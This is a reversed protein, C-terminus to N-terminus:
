LLKLLKLIVGIFSGITTLIGIFKMIGHVQSVHKELPAIKEELLETRRIHQELSVHQLALTTDITGLHGGLNDIKEEIRELRKDDAM